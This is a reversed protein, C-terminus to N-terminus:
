LMEGDFEFKVSRSEFSKCSRASSTSSPRAVLIKSSAFAVRPKYGLQSVSFAM